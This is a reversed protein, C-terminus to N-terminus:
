SKSVKQSVTQNFTTSKANTTLPARKKNAWSLLASDVRSVFEAWTFQKVHIHAQKGIMMCKEQNLALETIAKAWSDVDNIALLYGTKGDIISELPGGSKNAIVAKAHNMSELPVIGWDENLPTFLSFAAKKYLNALVEDTPSVVFEVNVGQPIKAKLESLYVQSKKDVFGAIVLKWPKPLNAKIFAEIGLQINKTWMIRGPLLIFPQYSIDSLDNQWAIGPYAMVMKDEDVCLKGKIIRNKVETSTTIVGDYYSWALRDVLKFTHKFIKYAVSYVFGQNKLSMQEYVPDFAARLPTSCINFLPLQHNRFTVLDGIGDCWVAVADVDADLPLKQSAVALASRLTGGITRKITTPNLVRVDVNAFEKFTNEPEYHGTYVIWEHESRTVLELLSKELGGHLYIWPQYLAIKM